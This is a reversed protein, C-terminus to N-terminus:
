DDGMKERKLQRRIVLIMSNGPFSFDWVMREIFFIREWISYKEKKATGERYLSVHLV